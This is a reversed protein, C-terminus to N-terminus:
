KSVLTALSILSARVGLSFDLFSGAGGLSGSGEIRALRECSGFFLFFFGRVPSVKGLIPM